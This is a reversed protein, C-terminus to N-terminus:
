GRSLRAIAEAAGDVPLDRATHTAREVLEVLGAAIKKSGVTVRLPVGILDADNFKVGAREDRDDYLVEVGLAELEGVLREAAAAVTEDRVNVPTVIVDFPAISAPWVIGAEDAFLEIAAVLVREIGIGYSGMVIPVKQGERDLVRAGLAESYRTGLKFIHGIEVAKFVDLAGECSPCGDGAKVTCLDAWMGVEIDRDVSVGRLHFDDENAGTTMNTRGRLALDAVIQLNAHEHASVAGLSGPGAGLAERIEPELAPWVATAGLADALKTPNLEHDGRVLALVKRDDAWYVLTKIQRDAATGGPFTTLAEITRVGPTAFKEPAEPGAADEVPAVRATAKETNAAYGCSACVAVTDEGADTKVMFETSESGGMAGSSAEVAVYLLGCRDFIRRYADRHAAFSRDLGERDLDFSYSDKMLFERVRLLGAKPREEDRFKTQIQFWIQPLQKYSRLDDRAIAAFIEEHTMGLGLAAGHRDRLRFMNEGMVEWRGSEQWIDAPHLAPLHFEQGGIAEMEDRVIGAIKRRVREGLPLMSFIGSALQRTLGARLLLAHSVFQADAPAERRTPIFFRSWRVANSPRSRGLSSDSTM